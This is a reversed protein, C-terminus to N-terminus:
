IEGERRDALRKLEAEVNRIRERKIAEMLLEFRAKCEDNLMLHRIGGLRYMASDCTTIKEQPTM